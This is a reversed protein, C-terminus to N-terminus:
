ARLNLTSLWQPMSVLQKQPSHFREGQSCNSEGQPWPGLQWDKCMMWNALLAQHHHGPSEELAVTGSLGPPTALSNGTRRLRQKLLCLHLNLWEIHGLAQSWYYIFVHLFAPPPSMTKRHEMQQLASRDNLSAWNWHYALRSPQRPAMFAMALSTLCPIHEIWSGCVPGVEPM